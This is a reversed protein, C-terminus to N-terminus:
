SLAMSISSCCINQLDMVISRGAAATCRMQDAPHKDHNDHVTEGRLGVMTAGGGGAVLSLLAMYLLKFMGAKHLEM